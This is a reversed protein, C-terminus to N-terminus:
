WKSYHSISEAIQDKIFASGGSVFLVSQRPCNTYNQAPQHSKARASESESSRPPPSSNCPSFFLMCVLLCCFSQLGASGVLGCATRGASWFPPDKFKGRGRKHKQKKEEPSVECKTDFFAVAQKCFINLLIYLFPWDYKLITDQRILDKWQNTIINLRAM